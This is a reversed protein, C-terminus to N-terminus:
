NIDNRSRDISKWFARLASKGEETAGCWVSYYEGNPPVSWNVDDVLLGDVQNTPVHIYEKETRQSRRFSVLGRGLLTKLAPAILAGIEADSGEVIFEGRLSWCLEWLGKWDEVTEELLFNELAASTLEKKEPM